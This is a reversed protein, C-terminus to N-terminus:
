GPWHRFLLDAFIIFFGWGWSILRYRKRLESGLGVIVMGTIFVWDLTAQQLSFGFVILGALPILIGKWGPLRVSLSM